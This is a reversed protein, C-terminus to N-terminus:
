GRNTIECLRLRSSLYTARSEFLLPEHSPGSVTTFRFFISRSILYIRIPFQASFCRTSIYFFSTLM